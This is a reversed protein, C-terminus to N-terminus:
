FRIVHDFSFSRECADYVQVLWLSQCAQALLCATPNPNELM